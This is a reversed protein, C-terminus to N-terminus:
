PRVKPELLIESITGFIVDPWFFTVHQSEGAMLLPITSKSIGLVNKRSDLLLVNVEVNAFDKVTRNFVTANVVSRPKSGDSTVSYEKEGAVIDPPQNPLFTWEQGTIDFKIKKITKVSVLNTEIVHTTAGPLVFTSGTRTTMVVDREDYIRIAYDLKSMLVLQNPNRIEVAVDYTDERVRFFKTWFVDLEKKEKLECKICTPGGCDVQEEGQNRVNDFCTPAPQVKEFIYFVIGLIIIAPIALIILQRMSRFDMYTNYGVGRTYDLM